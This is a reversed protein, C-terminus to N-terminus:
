GEVELLRRSHLVGVAQRASRGALVFCEEASTKKKAMM